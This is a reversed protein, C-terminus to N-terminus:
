QEQKEEIKNSCYRKKMDLVFFVMTGIFLAISIYQSTSLFYVGRELDNRFFELIFRIITYSFIYTYASLKKQPVKLVEIECAVFILILCISEILQVPLLPTNLPTNPNASFKYIVSFGSNVKVGFCCGSFLCGIRGLAHGLPLGPAFLECYDHFSLKYAKCYIFLGLIGGILGGYFVFGNKVIHVLSLDYQIIYKISTVVSFLKAGIIGGIGAFIGAYTVESKKINLKKTNYLSILIAIVFGVVFLIGYYPIEQGFLKFYSSKIVIM